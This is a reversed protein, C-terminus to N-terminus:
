IPRGGVARGRHYSSAPWSSCSSCSTLVCFRRSSRTRRPQFKTAKTALPGGPCQRGSGAPTPHDCVGLVGRRPTAPSGSARWDQRRWRPSDPTMRYLFEL